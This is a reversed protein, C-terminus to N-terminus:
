KEVNYCFCINQLFFLITTFKTSYHLIVTPAKSCRLENIILMTSYTSHTSYLNVRFIEAILGFILGHLDPAAKFILGVAVPFAILIIMMSINWIRGWTHVKDMYTSNNNM